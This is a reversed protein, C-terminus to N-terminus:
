RVHQTKGECLDFPEHDQYKVAACRGDFLGLLRFGNGFEKDPTVGTYKQGDVTLTASLNDSAVSRVTVM